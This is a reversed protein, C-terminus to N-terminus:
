RGTPRLNRKLWLDDIEDTIANYDASRPNSPDYDQIPRHAGMSEAVKVSRGIHSRLVPAGSARLQEVGERYLTLRDDYFTVAIGILELDPNTGRERAQDITALLAGVAHFNLPDPILPAVIGRSAIVIARGAFTDLGPAGDLIAVDYDEAIGTLAQRLVADGGPETLLAQGVAHLARSSAIGHLNPAIERRALKIARAPHRDRLVDAITPGADDGRRDIDLAYSLSNQPDLDIAIVRRGRKALAHALNFALASKGSGGKGSLIGIPIM